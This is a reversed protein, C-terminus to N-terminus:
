SGGVKRRRGSWAAERLERKLVKGSPNRPLADLFAVSRPRKYDAIRGRCFAILEDASARAGPRLVVVARVTEGWRDDPVGIVAADAVAPHHFLVEEIERPYVNEGGSVIMDKVRDRVYLYGEDDFSGADGTHMWGGRLAEATEDPLNWYGRMLQPGRAAIEGLEGCALPRDNEDVIRVETGLVPRGASLLLDPRGALARRHDEPLLFTVCSATETMGYGQGFECGFVELARALTSEAIPSAGYVMLRLAEYSRDAVDPLEVCCAQIMAPVLSAVAIGEESMARVVAEPEFAQHIVLEAGGAVANYLGIAMGAHFLPMVTLQREGPFLPMALRLQHLHDVIARQTLVAGKPRGTTGSTYMQYLDADPAPRFGPATTAAAAIWDEFADWGPRAAGLVVWRLAPVDSRLGDLAETYEDAAVVLRVRADELIFRWEPPALRFNLSVPVAGAEFAGYYLLPYELCNRALFAIRDGPSIGAGILANAIRRVSAQAQAWTLRRGGDVAFPADPRRHAHYHLWDQVLM